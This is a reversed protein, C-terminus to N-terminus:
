YEECTYYTSAEQFKKPFDSLYDTYLPACFFELENHGISPIEELQMKICKSQRLYILIFNAHIKSIRLFM